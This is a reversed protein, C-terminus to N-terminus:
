EVASMHSSFCRRYALQSAATPAPMPGRSPPGTAPLRRRRFMQFCRGKRGFYLFFLPGTLHTLDFPLRDPATVPVCPEHRLLTAVSLAPRQGPQSHQAACYHTFGTWASGQACPGAFRWIPTTKRTSGTTTVGRACNHRRGARHPCRRRPPLQSPISTPSFRTSSTSTKSVPSAACQGEVTRVPRSISVLCGSAGYPKISM